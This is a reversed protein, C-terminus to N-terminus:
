KKENETDGFIKRKVAKFIMLDNEDFCKTFIILLIYLGTFLSCLLIVNVLNMAMITRLYLLLALPILSVFFIKIMDRKIPLIRTYYRAELLIALSMMIGSITTALAAGTIGYKIVLIVDLILNLIATGVINALALKSKGAMALLNNSVSAISIIIGGIVLLRLSMEAGLYQSGFLINILAGPFIIILLFVPLNVIFIWKGVQKSLIKVTEMNNQSYEKTALPLFIQSFLDPIINMIGSLPAAVNYIGVQIATTLYGIVFSDTWYFISGIIGTFMLPWSYSFLEKTIDKNRLKYKGFIHAIKYKCVLYGVLCMSATGLIHSIIIANTKMGVLILLVIAVVKVINQLVNLIFSYWQIKEYARIVSLFIGSVVTLPVGISFIQLYIILNANHFISVSIFEAFLFMILGSVISTIASIIVSVKFVHKIKHIQNKGRYFAIYRLIGESLGLASFTAIFGLIMLGLSFLGYAEPGFYRAVIIRYVYLLLKSLIIGLLVFFGSKVIWKLHSHVNEGSNRTNPM